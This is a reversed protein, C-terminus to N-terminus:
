RRLRALSLPPSGSRPTVKQRRVERNCGRPPIASRGFAVTKFVTTPNCRGPTRIGRGGGHKAGQLGGPGLPAASRCTSALSEQRLRRLGRGARSQGLAVVGQRRRGHRELSQADDLQGEGAASTSGVSAGRLAAGVIATGASRPDLMAPARKPSRGPARPTCPLRRHPAHPRQAHARLKHARLCGRVRAGVRASRHRAALVRLCLPQPHPARRRSPPRSRLGNTTSRHRWAAQFSYCAPEARSCRWDAAASSSASEPVFRGRALRSPAGSLGQRRARGRPAACRALVAARVDPAPRDRGRRHDARLGRANDRERATRRRM